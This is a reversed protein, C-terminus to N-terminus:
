VKPDFDKPGPKIDTPLLGPSNAGVRRSALAAAAQSCVRAPLWTLVNQRSYNQCPKWLDLWVIIQSKILLGFTTRLLIIHIWTKNDQDETIIQLKTEQHGNIFLDTGTHLILSHQTSGSISAHKSRKMVWLQQPDLQQLNVWVTVTVLMELVTIAQIHFSIQKWKGPKMHLVKSQSQNWYKAGKIGDMLLNFCVTGFGTM